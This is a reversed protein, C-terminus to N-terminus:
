WLFLKSAELFITYIFHSSIITLHFLALGYQYKVRALSLYNHRIEVCLNYEPSKTALLVSWNLCILHPKGARQKKTRPIKLSHNKSSVSNRPKRLSIIFRDFVFHFHNQSPSFCRHLSNSLTQFITKRSRINVDSSNCFSFVAQTPM